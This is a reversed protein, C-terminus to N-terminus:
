IKGLLALIGAGVVVVGVGISSIGAWRTDFLRECPGPEGCTGKGDIAVLLGGAGIGVLGTAIGVWGLGRHPAASRHAHLDAAPPAALASLQAGGSPRAPAEDSQAVALSPSAARAAPPAASPAVASPGAPGTAAPAAVGAGKFIQSKLTSAAASATEFAEAATCIECRDDRSAVVKGTRRDVMQLHLAYSRGDVQVRGRLVYPAESPSAPVDAGSAMLGEALSRAFREKVDASAHDGGVPAVAVRPREQAMANKGAVGISALAVAALAATRVLRAACELMPRM